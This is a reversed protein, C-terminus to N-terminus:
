FLQEPIERIEAGSRGLSLVLIAEAGGDAPHAGLKQRLELDEQRGFLVRDPRAEELGRLLHRVSSLRAIPLLRLVHADVVVGKGRFVVL